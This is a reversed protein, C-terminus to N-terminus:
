VLLEIRDAPFRSLVAHLPRGAAEADVADSVLVVAGPALKLGGAEDATAHRASIKTSFREYDEIGFRRLAATMSGSEGLAQAIGDFRRHELWHTARSLPRGNGLSLTELRVTRAGPSLALAAAVRAGAREEKHSLLVSRLDQAQGALAESFRTRRGIRYSVRGANSVFTGSGQETRLVGDDRLVALARRVTHRNVGFREALLAEGLLRDGESLKGGVIDLRISDAVQRWLAVGGRPGDAREGHRTM